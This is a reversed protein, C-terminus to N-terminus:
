KLQWRGDEQKRVTGPRLLGVLAFNIVRGPAKEGFPYGRKQLEAKFDEISWSNGDRMFELLLGPLTGNSENVKEDTNQPYQFLPTDPALSKWLENESNLVTQLSQEIADLEDLQRRAIDRKSQIQQIRERLEPRIDKM